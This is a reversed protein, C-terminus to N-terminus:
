LRNCGPNRWPMTQTMRQMPPVRPASSAGPVTSKTIRSSSAIEPITVSTSKGLPTIEIHAPTRGYRIAESWGGLEHMYLIKALLRIIDLEGCETGGAPPCECLAM